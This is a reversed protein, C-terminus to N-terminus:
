IRDIFELLLENVQDPEDLMLFHSVNALVRLETQDNINRIREQMEDTWLTNPAYVALLPVHIPDNFATEAHTMESLFSRVLPKPAGKMFDNVKQVGWKPTREGTYGDVLVPWIYNCLFTNMLGMTLRFALGPNEYILMGDLAAFRSVKEPWRRYFERLAPVGLSHGVIVASNAGAAEMVGNIARAHLAMSYRTGKPETSEGHGPLDLLLLRGREALAPVQSEWFTLDCGGGHVLLIDPGEDGIVKYHVRLDGVDTYRSEAQGILREGPSQAKNM